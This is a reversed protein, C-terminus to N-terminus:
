NQYNVLALDYLRKWVLFGGLEPLSYNGYDLAVVFNFCKLDLDDLM